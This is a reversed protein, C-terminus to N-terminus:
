RYFRNAGPAPTTIFMRTGDTQYLSASESWSIASAPSTLVSTEQLRWNESSVPWSVTVTGSVPDTSITLLPAGATQISTVIGWFGGLLSYSGGTIAPGADPKGLTGSISYIGGTSTGGGGDFTFWDISYTQGSAVAALGISYLTLAIKKM